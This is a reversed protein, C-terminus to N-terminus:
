FFLSSVSGKAKYICSAFFSSAKISDGSITRILALLLKVCAIGINGLRAGTLVLASQCQINGTRGNAQFQNRFKGLSWLSFPEGAISRKVTKNEAIRLIFFGDGANRVFGPMDAVDCPLKGSIQGKGSHRQFFIQIKGNFCFGGATEFFPFKLTKSISFFM